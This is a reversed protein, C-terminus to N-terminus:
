LSPDMCASGSGIIDTRDAYGGDISPANGSGGATVTGSRIVIKGGSERGSGIGAGIGGSVQELEDETM